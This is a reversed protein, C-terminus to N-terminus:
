NSLKQWFWDVWQEATVIVEDNNKPTLDCYLNIYNLLENKTLHQLDVSDKAIGILDFNQPFPKNNSVTFYGGDLIYNPISGDSELNYIVVKAM